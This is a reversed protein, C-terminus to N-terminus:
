FIRFISLRYSCNKGYDSTCILFNTNKKSVSDFFTGTLWLVNTDSFACQIKDSQYASPLKMKNWSKGNNQSYFVLAHEKESKQGTYDTSIVWFNSNSRNQKIDCIARCNAGPQYPNLGVSSPLEFCINWQKGGDESQYLQENIATILHLNNKQNCVIKSCVHEKKLQIPGIHKWNEGGDESKLVGIGFRSGFGTTFGTALYIIQSNKEDICIDNIGLGHWRLHQTKNKWLPISDLFNTTQYLGGSNSALYVINKNSPHVAMASVFGVNPTSSPVDKFPGLPTWDSKAITFPDDPCIPTLPYEKNQSFFCLQFFFLFFLVVFVKM